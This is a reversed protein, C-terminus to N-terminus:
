KTSPKRLKENLYAKITEPYLKREVAKIRDHLTEETDTARVIVGSQALIRGSDLEPTAVHITCGTVSVGAQLAKPVARAGKFDPLLSPHTNLIRDKYQVFIENTMITMFGSMAVLDIHRSKLETAIRVTFGARDWTERPRFGYDTRDIVLAGLGHEKAVQIARCDRDALVLGIPLDAELMAELITGAGSALVAIKTV